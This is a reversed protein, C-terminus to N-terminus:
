FWIYPSQGTIQGLFLILWAAVIQEVYELKPDIASAKVFGSEGVPKRNKLSL